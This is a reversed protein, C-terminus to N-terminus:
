VFCVDRHQQLRLMENLSLEYLFNGFRMQVATRACPATGCPASVAPRCSRKLALLTEMLFREVQAITRTKNELEGCIRDAEKM